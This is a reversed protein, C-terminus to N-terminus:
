QNVHPIPPGPARVKRLREEEQYIKKTIQGINLEAKKALDYSMHQKEQFVQHIIPEEKPLWHDQKVEKKKMVEKERLAYKMEKEKARQERMKRDRKIREEEMLERHLREKQRM